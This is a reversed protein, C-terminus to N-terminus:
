HVVYSIKRRSSRNTYIRRYKYFVTPIKHDFEMSIINLISYKWQGRFTMGQEAIDHGEIENKKVQLCKM